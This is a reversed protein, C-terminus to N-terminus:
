TRPGALNAGAEASDARSFLRRLLSPREVWLLPNVARAIADGLLAFTAGAIAIMAAPALAAWPTVYFSKVGTTLMTGWDYDPAQVGLGLFSLAALTILGDALATFTAVALSDSINPFVHRRLVGIRSVGVVRAAVVYERSNVSSVLTYTFRAFAPAFALGVAVVAGAAGIGVVAVVFVALLVGGFGLLGDIAGAGFRRLRPGATSILAGLVAGILAAMLIAGLPLLLSLRTAALTRALIDQGLADTGLPHESSPGESAQAVDVDTAADGFLSPGAIALLTFIALLVLAIPGTPSRLFAGAALRMRSSRASM